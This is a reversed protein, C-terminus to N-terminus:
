QAAKDTEGLIIHRVPLGWRREIRRPLDQQMWTSVGPSLTSIVIGNYVHGSSMIEEGIAKMPLGDGAKAELVTLQEGEFLSRAAAAVEEASQHRDPQPGVKLYSPTAPVLLVFQAEPDRDRLAKLGQLLESSTATQNSIVLYKGM